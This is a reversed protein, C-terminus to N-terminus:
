NLLIVWRNKRKCEKILTAKVWNLEEDEIKNLLIICSEFDGLNRNIEAMMLLDNIASADLLKLLTKVNEKWRTVDTASEFIEQGNRLRDNYAWWIRERIFIEEEVNEAIQTGLARFYDDLKLFEAKDATPWDSNQQDGWEYTGIEKLKSLWFITQCKKCKTLDPFEPLMPSIRMGDSYFKSGFTNGSCLSRNELLNGCKPCKYIYNPGPLM